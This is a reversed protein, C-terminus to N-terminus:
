LSGRMTGEKKETMGRIPLDSCTRGRLEGVLGYEGVSSFTLAKVWVRRLRPPGLRFGIHRVPHFVLLYPSHFFAILFNSLRGLAGSYVLSCSGRAGASFIRASEEQRQASRARDDVGESSLAVLFSAGARQREAVFSSSDHRQIQIFDID